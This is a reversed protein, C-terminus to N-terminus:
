TLLWTINWDVCEILLLRLFTLKWRRLCGREWPRKGVGGGTGTKEKRAPAPAPYPFARPVLIAESHYNGSNVKPRENWLKPAAAQFSRDGPTTLTKGSFPRLLSTNCSRLSYRNIITTTPCSVRYTLLVYAKYFKLLSWYFRLFEAISSLYGTYTTFFQLLSATNLFDGSSGPQLM